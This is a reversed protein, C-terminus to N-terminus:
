EERDRVNMSAVIRGEKRLSIRVQFVDDDVASRRITTDRDDFPVCFFKRVKRGLGVAPGRGFQAHMADIFGVLRAAILSSMTISATTEIANGICAASPIKTQWVRCVALMVEIAVGSGM